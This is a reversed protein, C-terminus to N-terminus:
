KKKFANQAVEIIPVCTGTMGLRYKDCDPSLAYTRPDSEEKLTLADRLEDGAMFIGVTAIKDMAYIKQIFTPEKLFGVVREKTKPDIAVYIHVKAVKHQIALDAAKQELISIEEHTLENTLEDM